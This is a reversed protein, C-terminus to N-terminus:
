NPTFELKDLGIVKAVRRLYELADLVLVIRTIGKNYYTYILTDLITGLLKGLEIVICAIVYVQDILPDAIAEQTTMDM